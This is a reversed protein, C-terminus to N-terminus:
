KTLWLAGCEMAKEEDLVIWDLGKALVKEKL